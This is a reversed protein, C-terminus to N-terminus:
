QDHLVQDRVVGGHLEHRPVLVQLLPVARKCLLTVRKGVVGALRAPHVWPLLRHPPDLVHRVLAPPHQLFQPHTTTDRHTHM